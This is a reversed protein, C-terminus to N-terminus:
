STAAVIVGEMQYQRQGMVDEREQIESEMRPWQNVLPPVLFRCLSAGLHVFGSNGVHRMSCLAGGVRVPSGNHEAM